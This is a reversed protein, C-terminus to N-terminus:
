YVQLIQILNNLELERLLAGPQQTVLFILFLGLIILNGCCDINRATKKQKRKKYVDVRM